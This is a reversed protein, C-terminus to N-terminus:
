RLKTPGPWNVRGNSQSNETSSQIMQMNGCDKSLLYDEVYDKVASQWPRLLPLGEQQLRSNALVSNAPRSAPRPFERTSVPTIVVGHLHAYELAKLALEYWSCAGRNTLHYTKRCGREVMLLTHSAVDKSYSPSGKQDNVVRLPAGKQAADLITRIFNNGHAGFLWSTRIILHNPCFKRVQEEGQLKSRGYVNRPNPEDDELYPTEKCGDFIYDTSYHVLIAGCRAAARALNAPGVGNVLFAEQEHTECYDVWTLAAANIIVDPLFKEVQAMCQELSTIDMQARDVGLVEHRSHFVAVLDSGLMGLSGVILVKM